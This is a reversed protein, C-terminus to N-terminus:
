QDNTIGARLAPQLKGGRKGSYLTHSGRYHESVAKAQRAREKSSSAETSVHTHDLRRAEFGRSLEVDPTVALPQAQVGHGHQEIRYCPNGELRWEGTVPTADPKRQRLDIRDRHVTQAPDLFVKRVDCPEQERLVEDPEYRSPVMRILCEISSASPTHRALAGARADTTDIPTPTCHSRYHDNIM